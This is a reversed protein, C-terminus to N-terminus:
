SVASLEASAAPPGDSGAPYELLPVDCATWSDLIPEIVRWAEEAEDGRISLMSDGGLVDLLLRAYAPPDQPALTEALDARELDFPDGPGNLNLGLALTDPDLGLRLINPPPADGKFAMHPVPRFRIVVERRDVGLAKGSRLVFPVGAWRWNDVHLTVQAFTETQRAPDVGPEDVYSPVTRAGIVGAAYRARITDRRVEDCSPRRVSRLLETKRDRLDREGLSVPPEMGVLCLLQLLHNQLMDRLAGTGDYYSSRGELTLTEDWVIEVREIHRNNWLMEFVRNAFRLGLVNLVTQKGLFHDVRFVERESFREQLLRNLDRASDLGTGFPKEVVVRSGEPLDAAALARIAPESVSPPLALYAAIPHDLPGLARDLSGAVTIDVPRYTLDALLGARTAPPVDAAFRDLREAIHLRFQETTWDERSLGLVRFDDPLAGSDRLRALDPILKRSTLDGAAGLIVLTRIM